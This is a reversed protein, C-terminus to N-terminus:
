LVIDKEVAANVIVYAKDEPIEVGDADRTMPIVFLPKNLDTTSGIVVTKGAVTTFAHGKGKYFQLETVNHKTKFSVLTEM